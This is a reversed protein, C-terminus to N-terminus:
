LPAASCSRIMPQPALSPDLLSVSLSAFPHGGDVGGHLPLPFPSIQAEFENGLAEMMTAYGDERPAEWQKVIGELKMAEQAAPNDMSMGKIASEFSERKAGDLSALADFQCHDFVPILIGPCVELEKTVGEEVARNWMFDSVFGADARGDLLAKVVETEGAATDGHKGVDRDFRTVHLTAKTAPPLTHMPLVYAQPSDFTGTAVRKGALSAFDTIGSAKTVVVHSKFDRDVDRMGLSLSTFNTRLKTRAHALPGNWAIDIDNAMLAEVQREYSSFLVFDFDCGVGNLYAKMAEWVMPISSSYAV